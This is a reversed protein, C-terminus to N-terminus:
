NIPMTPVASDGDPRRVNAKSLRNKGNHKKPAITQPPAPPALVQPSDFLHLQGYLNGDRDMWLPWCDIVTGTLWVSSVIAAAATWKGMLFGKRGSWQLLRKAGSRIIWRRSIWRGFLWAIGTAPIAIIGVSWWVNSAPAPFFVLRQDTALIGFRMSRALLIAILITAPVSLVALAGIWKVRSWHGATRMAKSLHLLADTVYQESLSRNVTERIAGPSQDRLSADIVSQHIESEMFPSIAKSASKYFWPVWRSKHKSLEGLREFDEHLIIELVGGSDFIRPIDGFFIWESHHGAIKIAMECFLVSCDYTFEAVSDDRQLDTSAFQISGYDGLLPFGPKCLAAHVHDPTGDQYVGFFTPVTYTHTSTIKTLYGHGACTTCTLNGSGGCTGCTKRGSGGCSSCNVRGGSCSSCTQSRTETRSHGSFDSVTVTHMTSGRGSCISCSTRGSGSCWGCSVRGSGSCGHCTVKGSGHCGNCTYAHFLRRPHTRICTKTSISAYRSEKVSQALADLTEPRTLESLAQETVQEQYWKWDATGFDDEDPKHVGQHECVDSDVELTHRVKIKFQRITPRANAVELDTVGFRTSREIFDSALAKCSEKYLRLVEDKGM